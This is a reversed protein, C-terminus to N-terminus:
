IIWNSYKNRDWQLWVDFIYCNFGLVYISTVCPFGYVSGFQLKLLVSAM